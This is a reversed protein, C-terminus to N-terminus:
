NLTKTPLATISFGSPLCKLTAFAATATILERGRKTTHGAAVLAM